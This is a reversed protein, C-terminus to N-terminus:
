RLPFARFPKVGPATRCRHEVAGKMNQGGVKTAAAVVKFSNWADQLELEAGEKVGQISGKVTCYDSQSKCGVLCIALVTLISIIHKNNM